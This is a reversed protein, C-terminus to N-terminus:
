KIEPVFLPPLDPKESALWKLRKRLKREKMPAHRLLLVDKPSISAESLLDNFVKAKIEM